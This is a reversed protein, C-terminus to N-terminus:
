ELDLATLIRGLEYGSTESGALCNKSNALIGSGVMRSGFNVSGVVPAFGFLDELLATEDETIGPSVLLGKNTVCGAMGVTKIGAITGKRVDIKLTDGIIRVINDPMEPHVLGATDNALLINGVANLKGPMVTVPKGFQKSLADAKSNEPVLFGNSNGRCMSGVLISDNVLCKYVSVDLRKEIQATVEPRTGEPVLCIEETCTSFVGIVPTDMINITQM